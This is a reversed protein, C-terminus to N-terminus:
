GSRKALLGYFSEGPYLQTKQVQSFGSQQLECVVDDVAPLPVCGQTSRLVLDFNAAIVTTSKFISVMALIGDPRLRSCLSQFLPVHQMTAFYYINNYLTIIDFPGALEPPPELINAVRVDLRDSIGWSALNARAEEVVPPQMDIAVGTLQPNSEAAYRLYVGSGCGIELLRLPRDRKVFTRIFSAVVPELLRSSRAVVSATSGLYDGSPAGHLRECLEVYVRGYYTIIEENMAILPDSVPDVLALSREGRLRYTGNSRSLEGLAIGLELLADIGLAQIIQDKSRPTALLQLLGCQNAAYFFHLRVFPTLDQTLQLRARLHPQRLLSVLSRLNM